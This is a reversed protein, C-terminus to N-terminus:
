RPGQTDVILDYGDAQIVKGTAFSGVPRPHTLFCVGDIEPAQGSHRGFCYGEGDVGDVLLEVDTGIRRRAAASVIEQQALM